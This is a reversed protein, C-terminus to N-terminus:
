LFDSVVMSKQSVSYASYDCCDRIMYTSPLYKGLLDYTVMVELGQLSKPGAFEGSLLTLWNTLGHVNGRIGTISINLVARM